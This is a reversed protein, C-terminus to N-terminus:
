QPVPRARSPSGRKRPPSSGSEACTWCIVSTGLSLEALDRDASRVEASLDRIRRALRQMVTRRAKEQSPPPPSVYNCAHESSPTNPRAAYDSVSGIRPPSCWHRSNTPPPPAPKSRAKDSSWRCAPPKARAPPPPVASHERGLAEQADRRADLADTKGGPRRMVRKPRDSDIMEQRRPASSTDARRRPQPHRRNGVVGSGPCPHPGM